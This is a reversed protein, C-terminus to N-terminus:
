LDLENRAGAHSTKNERFYYFDKEFNEEVLQKLHTFRKNPILEDQSSHILVLNVPCDLVLDENQKKTLDDSIHYQLWKKAMILLPVSFFNSLIPSFKKLNDLFLDDFSTYPSDLVVGVVNSLLEENEPQNSYSSEIYRLVTNCGISRGWLVVKRIKERERLTAILNGLDKQELIGFTVHGGQSRGCARSDYLCLNLRYKWCISLLYSGEYKCSGYSHNYIITAISKPHSLFVYNLTLDDSDFSGENQVFKKYEPQSSLFCEYNRRPPQLLSKLKQM